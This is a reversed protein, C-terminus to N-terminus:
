MPEDERANEWVFKLLRYFEVTGEKLHGLRITQGIRLRVVIGEGGQEGLGIWSIEAYPIESLKLLYTVMLNEATVTVRRVGPGLTSVMLALFAGVLLLDGGTAGECWMWFMAVTLAVVLGVTFSARVGADRHFERPLSSNLALNETREVILDRLRHFNELAYDLMVSRGQADTVRLRTTKHKVSRIDLWKLHTKQGRVVHTVGSDDAVVYDDVHRLGWAVLGSLGLAILALPAITWSNEKPDLVPLLFTYVTLALFFAFGVRFVGKYGKPLRFIYQREERTM